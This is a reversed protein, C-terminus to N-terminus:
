RYIPVNHLGYDYKLGSAYLIAEEKSKCTHVYHWDYGDNDTLVEVIWGSRKKTIQFAIISDLDIGVLDNM